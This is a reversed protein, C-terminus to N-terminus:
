GTNLHKSRDLTTYTHRDRYYQTHKPTDIVSIITLSLFRGESGSEITWDSGVGGWEVLGFWVLGFDVWVIM